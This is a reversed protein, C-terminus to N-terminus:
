IELTKLFENGNIMFHETQNGENNHYATNSLIKLLKWEKTQFNKIQIEIYPELKKMKM